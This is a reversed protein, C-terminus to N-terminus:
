EDSWDAISDLFAQDVDETPSSTAALSQEHAQRAFEPSNVDPVWIQMLRMGQARQRARYASVRKKSEVAM